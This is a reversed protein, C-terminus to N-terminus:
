GGVKITTGCDKLTNLIGKMLDESPEEIDPMKYPKGLRKYKEQGIKHYPLLNVETRSDLTKIFDRFAELDKQGDNFGPIIPIRIIIKKGLTSLTKLNNLILENPVGTYEKHKNSDMHKLDYLFLDTYKSAKIITKEPVYGCTDVTTHIDEKKMEKLLGILFHSQMLPEGGSITLGGGSEQYFNKDSLIEKKAEEITITRGEKVRADAYCEHTCHCCDVCKSKDTIVRGEVECIAGEKCMEICVKCGICRNPFLMLQDKTEQSEPNHCWLCKLPCGKLFLTTRIGPGDHISYKMINYIKGELGMVAKQTRQQNIIYCIRHWRGLSFSHLFNHPKKLYGWWGLFFM